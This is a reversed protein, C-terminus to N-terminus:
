VDKSSEEEKAEEDAKIIELLERLKSRAKKSLGTLSMEKRIDFDGTVKVESRDRFSPDHKKLFLTSLSDSYVQETAVVTDRHRGGIIPRKTGFRARDAATTVFSAKYRELAEDCLVQFEINNTRENRCEIPNCGVADAALIYTGYSQLNELYAKWLDPSFKPWIRAPM